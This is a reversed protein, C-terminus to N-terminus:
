ELHGGLSDHCYSDIPSQRLRKESRLLFFPLSTKCFLVNQQVKAPTKLFSKAYM